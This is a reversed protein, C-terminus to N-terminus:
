TSRSHLHCHLRFQKLEKKQVFYFIKDTGYKDSNRQHHHKGCLNFKWTWIKLKYILQFGLNDIPFTFLYMYAYRRITPSTLRNREKKKKIYNLIMKYLLM